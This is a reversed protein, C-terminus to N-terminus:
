ETLRWSSTRRLAQGVCLTIGCAAALRVFASRLMLHSLVLATPLQRIGRLLNIGAAQRSKCSWVLVDLQSSANGLHHPQQSIFFHPPSSPILLPSSLDLQASDRFRECFCSCREKSRGSATLHRPLSLKASASEEEYRESQLIM